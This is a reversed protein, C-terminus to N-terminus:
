CFSHRPIREVVHPAIGFQTVLLMPVENPSIKKAHCDQGAKTVLVGNNYALTGGNMNRRIFLKDKYMRGHALGARTQDHGTRFTEFTCCTQQITFTGIFRGHPLQWHITGDYDGWIRLPGDGAATRHGGALRLPQEALFTPDVLFKENELTAIATGHKGTALVAGMSGFARQVAFGFHQLLARLAEANAWCLNSISGDLWSRFYAKAPFGPVPGLGGEALYILLAINDYGTGRCWASFATQLGTLTLPLTSTLGLRQKVEAALSASLAATGLDCDADACGDNFALSRPPLM